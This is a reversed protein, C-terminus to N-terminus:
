SGLTSCGPISSKGPAFPDDPDCFGAALDLPESSLLRPPNYRRRTDNGAVGGALTTKSYGGTSGPRTTNKKEPMNKEESLTNNSM